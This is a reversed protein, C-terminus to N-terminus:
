LRYVIKYLAPLPQNGELGYDKIIFKKQTTYITITSTPQDSTNTRYENKFEEFNIIQLLNLAQKMEENSLSYISPKHAPNYFWKRCISSDHVFDIYVDISPFDDSEVGFASLHKEVKSISNPLNQKPINYCSLKHFCFLFTFIIIARHM